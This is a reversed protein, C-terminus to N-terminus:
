ELAPRAPHPQRYRAQEERNAPRASIIRVAAGRVTFVVLVHGRAEGIARFRVEGHAKRRDPRQITESELATAADVRDIGHKVLNVRAKRPDRESPPSRM